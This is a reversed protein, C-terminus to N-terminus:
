LKDKLVYARGSSLVIVREKVGDFNIDVIRSDYNKSGTSFTSHKVKECYQFLQNKASHWEKTNTNHKSMKKLLSNFKRRQFIEKMKGGMSLVNYFSSGGPM